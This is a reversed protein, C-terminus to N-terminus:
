EKAGRKRLLQAIEKYGKEEAIALPTKGQNNTVKVPYGKELFRKVNKMDGNRVAYSLPRNILEELWRSEKLEGIISNIAWALRNQGERVAVVYHEKRRFWPTDPPFDDDKFEISTVMGERHAAVAFPTDAVVFELNGDQLKKIAEDLKPFEEITVKQPLEKVLRQLIDKSTTGRQVGVAGEISGRVSSVKRGKKFILSLTTTYYPVSFMIGYEQERWPRYSIASIIIDAERHSLLEKPWYARDWNATLPKGLKLSLRKTIEEALQRDIFYALSKNEDADYSRVIRVEREQKIRDYASDHLSWLRLGFWIAVFPILVVLLLLGANLISGGLDSLSFLRLKRVSSAQLWRVQVERQSALDHKAEHTVLQQGAPKPENDFPDWPRGAPIHQLSEKLVNRDIPLSDTGKKDKYLDNVRKLRDRAVCYGHHILCRIEFKSFHDLDTRIFQLENQLALDLAKKDRERSVKHSLSVLCYRGSSLVDKRSIGAREMELTDIRHMLIDVARFVTGILKLKSSAEYDFTSGADSAIILSPFNPLSTPFDADSEAESLAKKYLLDFKRIGLNDFVAGDTFFQRGKFQEEMLSLDSAELPIPPFFAPSACSAAVKISLPPRTTDYEQPNKPDDISFTDESFSCLKGSSLNTTLIYLTPKIPSGPHATDETHQYKSEAPENSEFLKELSETLLNIRSWRRSIFGLPFRRVIRGRVDSQVLHLVERAAVDFDSIYRQWNEVLHAALITGGSVSCIHTVKALLKADSLLRIIGLHFLTARFGGGSLSLGLSFNDPVDNM